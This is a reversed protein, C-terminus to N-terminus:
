STRRSPSGAPAPTARRRPCSAAPHRDPEPQRQPVRRARRRERTGQQRQRRVRLHRAAAGRTALPPERLSDSVCSRGRTTSTLDPCLEVAWRPDAGFWGRFHHTLVPPVLAADADLHRPLHRQPRARGRGVPRARGHRGPDGLRAAGGCRRPARPRAPPAGSRSAWPLDGVVHEYLYPTSYVGVTYGADTYGKAAGRVVAANAKKDSRWDFQPVSEVDLWVIPSQLGAQKMTALNFQAQRRGLEEGSVGAPSFRTPGSIVSYAAALLHRSKAWAVQSALCPNAVFGPGNTLGIVVFRASADPLPLGESRKEPIGMGKPCQPWSIDGGLLPGTIARSPCRRCRSRRPRRPPPPRRRRHRTDARASADPSPAATATPTAASDAKKSDPALPAECGTTVLVVLALVALLTPGQGSSHADTEGPQCTESGLRVPGGRPQCCVRAPRQITAHTSSGSWSEPCRGSWRRPPRRRGTRRPPRRRRGRPHAPRARRRPAPRSRRPGARDDLLEGRRGGRRVADRGPEAGERGPVDRGLHAGLQLPRQDARM